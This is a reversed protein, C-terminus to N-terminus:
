YSLNIVIHPRGNWGRKSGLEYDDIDDFDVDDKWKGKFYLAGNRFMKGEGERKGNKWHGSFLLEDNSDFVDGEGDRVFESEVEGKYGGEYVKLGNEDFESMRNKEIEKLKNMRMGNECSYVIMKKGEYEFLLGDGKRKKKKDDYEGKYLAKGEDDYEIMIKGNMERTKRIVENKEFVGEYFHSSSYYYVGKGNRKYEDDDICYEGEYVLRDGEYEKMNKGEIIDYGKKMGNELFSIMNVKGNKYDFIMGKGNRKYGNKVNGEYEGKYVIQNKDDYEIMRNKEIFRNMVRKKMGNEYLVIQSLKDNEYEYCIGDKMHNENFKCISVTKGDKKEEYYSPEEKYQELSSFREGNMYIGEFIVKTDHFEKGWGNQIGHEYVCEKIKQGKEDCFLCYGHLEDEHFNVTALIMKKKSLVKGAGEKKGNVYEVKLTSGSPFSVGGIETSQININTSTTSSM